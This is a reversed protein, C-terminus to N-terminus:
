IVIIIITGPILLVGVKYEFKKTAPLFVVFWSSVVVVIFLKLKLLLGRKNERKKNSKTTTTTKRKTTTTIHSDQRALASPSEGKLVDAAM